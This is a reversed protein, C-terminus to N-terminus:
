LANGSVKKKGLFIFLNLSITELYHWCFFFVFFLFSFCFFCSLFALHLVNDPCFILVCFLKFLLSIWPSIRTELSFMIWMFGYISLLHPIQICVNRSFYLLKIISIFHVCHYMWDLIATNSQLIYLRCYQM